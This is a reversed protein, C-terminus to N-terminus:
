KTKSKLLTDTFVSMVDNGTKVIQKTFARQAEIFSFLPAKLNEDTIFTTVFYKKSDQVTDIFRDAAFM